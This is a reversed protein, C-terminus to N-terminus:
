EPKLAYIQYTDLFQLEHMVKKEKEEVTYRDVEIDKSFSIYKEENNPICKTNGQTKGIKKIFLHSNHGSM